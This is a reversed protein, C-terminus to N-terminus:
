YGMSPGDRDPRIVPAEYAREGTSPAPAKAPAPKALNYARRANEPDKEANHLANIRNKLANARTVLEETNLQKLRTQLLM